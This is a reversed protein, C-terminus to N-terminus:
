RIYLYLGRRRRRRGYWGRRRRRRRGFWLGRFGRRRRRRWAKAPTASTALTLTSVGALGLGYTGVSGAAYIVVMAVAAFTAVVGRRLGRGALRLAQLVPKTAAVITENMRNGRRLLFPNRDDHHLPLCYRGKGHRHWPLRASMAHVYKREVGSM